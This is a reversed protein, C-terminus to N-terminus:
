ISGGSTRDRYELRRINKDSTKLLAIIVELQNELEKKINNM